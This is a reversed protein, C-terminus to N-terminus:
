TVEEWDISGICTDGNGYGAVALIFATNTNAFSNRELQLQFNNGQLQAASGGQQAVYSYGTILSTTNAITNATM